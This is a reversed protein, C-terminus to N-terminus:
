VTFVSCRLWLAGSPEATLTVECPSSQVGSETTVILTGVYEGVLDTEFGGRDSTSGGPMAAASGEPKEVLTWHYDILAEGGPDYSDSGIWRATESIPRVKDPTVSCLAVPGDSDADSDADADADADSDSDADAEYYPDDVMVGSDGKEVETPLTCGGFILWVAFGAMRQRM